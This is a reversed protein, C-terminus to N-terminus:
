KNLFVNELHGKCDTLTIETWVTGFYRDEDRSVAGHTAYNQTQTGTLGIKEKVLCYLPASCRSFEYVGHDANHKNLKITGAMETGKKRLIRFQEPTLRPRWEEEIRLTSQNAM